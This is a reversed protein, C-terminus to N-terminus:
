NLYDQKLDNLFQDFSEDDLPTRVFDAAYSPTKPRVPREYAAAPKAAPKRQTAASKSAAKAPAKTPAKAPAKAPRQTKAESAAPTRVPKREAPKREPAKRSVPKPREGSTQKAAPKQTAQRKEATHKVAATKKDTPKAKASQIDPKREANVAAKKVEAHRPAPESKTNKSRYEDAFVNNDNKIDLAFPLEAVLLAFWFVLLIVPPNGDDTMRKLAHLFARIGEPMQSHPICIYAAIVGIFLLVALVRLIIIVKKKM